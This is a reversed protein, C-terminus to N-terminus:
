ATPDPLAEALQDALLAVQWNRAGFGRLIDGVTQSTAEDPPSWALRRVYDPSILNEPPLNNSEATTVVVQRCRALRAAAIPDREAWRHPPPPGDVPQNVPLADDPLARAEDLADLWVRALRRVSRGGFGPIALLAREDKPDQEAAAVIASDPLVRGPASDRRSAVGDRAYWLSRVRSQARAGRVRHIGSTRRWPDPRVRPPRDASAVLAAFEEAAWASKGQRDLEAALLDRLDTLLEVDLAAYTLWSEPLPRTSWDAASHHKELSYGLLQETLAALGVREFGALRAALETDFLRRPKLGLEALCALDQSAAHLVWESEALAADLTRLDDLPMPDILVTGAGARRLQVLYARQTYRYGSAREADVAVPGTGASMKAVVEALETETEVPRPTGERPATLPVSAPLPDPGGSTPDPPEALPRGDGAPEPEDRRRLPAEDTM